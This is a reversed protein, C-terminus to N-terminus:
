EESHKPPEPLHQWHTPKPYMAPLGPANIRWGSNAGGYYGTFQIEPRYLLVHFGDKSATEIPQWESM